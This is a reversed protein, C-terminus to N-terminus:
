GIFEVVPVLVASVNWNANRARGEGVPAVLVGTAEGHHGVDRVLYACLLIQSGPIGLYAMQQLALLASGSVQGDDVLDGSEGQARKIGVLDEAPDDSRHLLFEAEEVGTEEQDLIPFHDHACARPRVFREERYAVDLADAVANDAGRHGGALRDHGVIHASVIAADKGKGLLGLRLGLEAHRDLCAAIHHTRQIYLAGLRIAEAIVIQGRQLNQRILQGPHDM